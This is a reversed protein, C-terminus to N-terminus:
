CSSKDLIFKQIRSNTADPVYLNGKQDFQLDSPNHLQDSRSGNGRGGAVVTGSSAEPFWRMIRHNRTDAVYVNGLQDVAVSDPNNLQHDDTGFSGGAVVVGDSTEEGIKLVRHSDTDVVYVSRHQDVCLRMPRNLGIALTQGVTDGKRWKRVQYQTWDSTYLSGEDVQGIGRVFLNEIITKGTSAETFWQQIRRNREDAIYVTGNRDVM